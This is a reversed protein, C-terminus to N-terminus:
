GRSRLSRNEPRQVQHNRDQSDRPRFLLRFSVTRVLGQQATSSRQAVRVPTAGRVLWGSDLTASWFGVQAAVFVFEQACCVDELERLLRM